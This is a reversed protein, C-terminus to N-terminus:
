RIIYAADASFYLQLRVLFDPMDKLLIVPSDEPLCEVQEHDLQIPIRIIEMLTKALCSDGGNHLQEASLSLFLVGNVM